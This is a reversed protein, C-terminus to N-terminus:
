FSIGEFSETLLIHNRDKQSITTPELPWNICILPDDFKLGGQSEPHYSGTHLYLLETNDELTQFGHACGKPIFIMNYGKASLEIAHWKLFTPSDKRIDIIVDYVKGKLCKVIKIETFPQFQFHMGRITGKEKNISHNIQSINENFEIEELADKAFLKTFVGREDEFPSLKIEYAGPIPIEKFSM